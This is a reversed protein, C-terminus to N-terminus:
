KHRNINHKKTYLSDCILEQLVGLFLHVFSILSVKNQKFGNVDSESILYEFAFAFPWEKSKFWLHIQNHWSVNCQSTLAIKGEWGGGGGRDVDESGNVRVKRFQRGPAHQWQPHFRSHELTEVTWKCYLRHVLSLSLLWMGAVLYFIM